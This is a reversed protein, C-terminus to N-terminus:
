GGLVGLSQLSAEETRAAYVAFGAMLSEYQNSPPTSEGVHVYAYPDIGRFRWQAYLLWM